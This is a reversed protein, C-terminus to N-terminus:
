RTPIPTSFSSPIALRASKASSRRSSRPAACVTTTVSDNRCRTISFPTAGSRM